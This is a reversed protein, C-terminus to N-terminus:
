VGMRQESASAIELGSWTCSNTDAMIVCPNSHGIEAAAATAAAHVIAPSPDYNAAHRPEIRILFMSM